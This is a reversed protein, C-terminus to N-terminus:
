KNNWFLPRQDKSQMRQGVRDMMLRSGVSPLVRHAVVEGEVLAKDLYLVLAAVRRTFAAQPGEIWGLHVLHTVLQVLPSAFVGDRNAAAHRPWTLGDASLRLNQERVQHARGRCFAEITKQPLSWVPESM